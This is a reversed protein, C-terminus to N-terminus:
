YLTRNICNSNTDPETGAAYFAVTNGNVYIWVDVQAGAKTTSVVNEKLELYGTTGTLDSLEFM